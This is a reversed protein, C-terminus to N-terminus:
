EFLHKIMKKIHMNNTKLYSSKIRSRVVEDSGGLHLGDNYLPQLLYYLEPINVGRNLAYNLKNIVKHEIIFGERDDADLQQFVLEEIRIRIGAIIMVSDYAQGLLYKNTIEEYLKQRFQENNDSFSDSIKNALENSMSYTEAIYHIYYKEIEEKERDSITSSERLRLMKVIPSDIQITSSFAIYHIKKKSFYYNSFVAPDLHTFILPYLVKGNTKCRKILESLYYQIALMNSGDLYDFIEDIVLIGVNKKFYYEAVTINAVFSLIDREGNSMSNARDFRVVLKGHDEHTRITRGTTNFDALRKDVLEKLSKYALYSQVKVLIDREGAAYHAGITKCIQITTFALDIEQWDNPKNTMGAICDFLAAVNSNTRLMAILDLPIGNKIESATGRTPCNNLFQSFSHAIRKQSICKNLQEKIECLRNINEFCSFMNGINLFLKGKDGFSAKLSSYSYNISRQQPISKCIVIDEVRLDASSSTGHGFNRSTSKAYLPSNIVWLFLNESISNDTDTAIYTGAKEGLLEIELCPHNDANQQYIDRIDLKMKGHMASKFATTITSKGYGNPAVIINPQNAILDVFPIEFSSKGKINDVKIRKILNM